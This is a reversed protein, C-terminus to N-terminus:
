FLFNVTNQIKQALWSKGFKNFHLGHKTFYSRKSNDINLFVYGHLDCFVKLLDNKRKIVNHVDTDPMDYRKPVGVIVVNKRKDVRERLKILGRRVGEDTTDNTGGMIVTCVNGGKKVGEVVAEMRAGGKVNMRAGKLLDGLDRGHSDSHVDFRVDRGQKSGGAKKGKRRVWEWKQEGKGTSKGVSAEEVVMQPVIGGEKYLKNWYVTSAVSEQQVVNSLPDTANTVIKLQGILKKNEIEVSQLRTELSCNNREIAAQNEELKKLRSLLSTGVDPYVGSEKTHTFTDDQVTDSSNETQTSVTDKHNENKMKDIEETLRLNEDRLRECEAEKTELEVVKKTLQDNLRKLEETYFAVEENSTSNDDDAVTITMHRTETQEESVSIATLSSNDAQLVCDQCIWDGDPIDDKTMNVCTLHYWNDCGDCRPHEDDEWVLEPCKGCRDSADLNDTMLKVPASAEYKAVYVDTSSLREDKMFIAASKLDPFRQYLNGSYGNVQPKVHEKFLTCKSLYIGTERGKLVAYICLSKDSKLISECKVDM